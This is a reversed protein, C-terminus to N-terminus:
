DCGNGQDWEMAPGVMVANVQPYGAEELADEAAAIMCAQLCAENLVGSGRIDLRVEFKVKLGM